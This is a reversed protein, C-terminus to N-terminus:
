PDTQNATAKREWRGQSSQQWYSLAVGSDKLRKWHGRASDLAAADNGDFMLACRKFRDLAEPPVAGDVLVLLDAQNPVDDVAATLYIPQREAFGTDPTGHPLFSVSDYTWLMQDLADVRDRNGTRVVARYGQSLARLLLQPLARDLGWRQLHYFRVETM